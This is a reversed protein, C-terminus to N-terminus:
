KSPAELGAYTFFYWTLALNFQTSTMHTDELFTYIKVNGANSKDLSNMLYYIFLMPLVRLDLLRILRKHAIKDSTFHVHLRLYDEYEAARGPELNVAAQGSMLYMSGVDKDAISSGTEVTAPAKETFEPKAM